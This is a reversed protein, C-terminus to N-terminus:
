RRITPYWENDNPDQYFDGNFTYWTGNQRFYLYDTTYEREPQQQQPQKYDFDMPPASAELNSPPCHLTYTSYDEVNVGQLDKLGVLTELANTTKKNLDDIDSVFYENAKICIGALLSLSLCLGATGMLPPALIFATVVFISSAVVAVTAALKLYTYTKETELAKHKAEMAKRLQVVAPNSSFEKFDNQELAKLRTLKEVEKDINKIRGIFFNGLVIGVAAIVGGIAAGARQNNAAQEEKTRPRAEVNTTNNFNVLGYQRSQNNRSFAVAVHGIAEGITALAKWTEDSFWSGNEQAPPNHRVQFREIKNWNPQNYITLYPTPEM